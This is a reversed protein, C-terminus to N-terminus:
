VWTIPISTSDIYHIRVGAFGTATPLDGYVEAYIAVQGPGPALNGFGAKSVLVSDSVLATGTMDSRAGYVSICFPESPVATTATATPTGAPTPAAAKCNGAANGSMLAFPHHAFPSTLLFPATYHITLSAGPQPISLRSDAAPATITLAQQPAPIVVTTQKGHVDTYVITYEGGAEPRPVTFEDTVIPPSDADAHHGNVTLDQHDALSVTYWHGQRDQALVNVDVTVQTSPSLAHYFDVELRLQNAPQLALSQGCASLAIMTCLIAVVLPLRMHREKMSVEKRIVLLSAPGYPCRCQGLLELLHRALVHLQGPHVLAIGALVDRLGGRHLAPQFQSEHIAM